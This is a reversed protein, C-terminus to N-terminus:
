RVSKTSLANGIQALTEKVKFSKPKREGKKTTIEFNFFLNAGVISHSIQTVKNMDVLIKKGNLETLELWM